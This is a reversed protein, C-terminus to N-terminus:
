HMWPHTRRRNHPLQFANALGALTFAEGLHNERRHTRLEDVVREAKEVREEVAANGVPDGHKWLDLLRRPSIM